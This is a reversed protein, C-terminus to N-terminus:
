LAAWEKFAPEPLVAAQRPGPLLFKSPHWAVVGAMFAMTLPIAIPVAYQLVCGVANAVLDTSLSLTMGGHACTYLISGVRAAVVSKFLDIM